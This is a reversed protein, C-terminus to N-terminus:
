LRIFQRRRVKPLRASKKPKALRELVKWDKSLDMGWWEDEIDDSDMGNVVLSIDNKKCLKSFTWREEETWFMEPSDWTDLTLENLTSAPSALASTATGYSISPFTLSITEIQPLTVVTQIVEEPFSEDTLLHFNVLNVLPSLTEPLYVDSTEEESDSSISLKKLTSGVLKFVAELTSNPISVVSALKLSTLYSPKSGLLSLLSREPLELDTLSLETLQYTPLESPPFMNSKLLRSGDCYGTFALSKLSTWDILLRGLAKMDESVQSRRTQRRSRSSVYSCHTIEAKDPKLTHLAAFFRDRAKDTLEVHVLSIEKVVPTSRLLGSSRKFIENLNKSSWDNTPTSLDLKQVARGLEPYRDFVARLRQISAPANSIRLNQAFLIRRAPDTWLKCVLSANKLTIARSSPTWPAGEQTRKLIEFICEPLMVVRRGAPKAKDVRQTEIEVDSLGMAVVNEPDSEQESEDLVYIPTDGFPSSDSVVVQRLQTYASEGTYSRELLLAM